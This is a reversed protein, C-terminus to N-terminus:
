PATAAVANGGGQKAAYMRRDSADILTVTTEGDEPFAAVGLSITVSTIDRGVIFPTNEVARRIREAM